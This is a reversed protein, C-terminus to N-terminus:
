TFSRRLSASPSAMRASASALADPAALRSILPAAERGLYVVGPNGVPIETFGLRHYFAQAGTNAPAVGLAGRRGPRARPLVLADTGRGWGKGQRDPLLDIHLHAPYAALAPM